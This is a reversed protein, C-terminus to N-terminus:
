ESIYEQLAFPLPIDVFEWQGTAPVLVFRIATDTSKKDSGIYQNIIDFPLPLSVPLDFFDLLEVLRRTSERDLGLLRESLRAAAVMGIAVAEGHLHSQYKGWKEVIHGITHGFNLVARLGSEREDQSVIHSKILCCHRIIESLVEPDRAKLAARQRCLTDFLEADMAFGYKIVEAIGAAYNRSDLTTLTDTNIAVHVPQHFAGVMNKGGTLNVGTKGGVSSDVQSLLTTPIQIFDIGRMFTAAVFGTMDGVVGGGFAILLSSRNAGNELLWEQIAAFTDLSKHEEGDGMCYTATPQLGSHELLQNGWLELIRPQTIIYTRRKGIGEPLCFRDDIRIPYSTAATAGIPVQLTIQKM